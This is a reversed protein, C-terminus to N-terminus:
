NGKADESGFREIEKEGENLWEKSERNLVRHIQAPHATALDLETLGEL